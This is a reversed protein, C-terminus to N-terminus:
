AFSVTATGSLFITQALLTQSSSPCTPWSDVENVTVTVDFSGAINVYDGTGSKAVIPTPAHVTVLGSCSAPDTPFRAFAHILDTELTAINLEFSGRSLQVEARTGNKARVTHGFDAIAGTLVATSAPGDNNSYTTLHVLGGVRSNGRGAPRGHQSSTSRPSASGATPTTACASVGGIVLGIAIVSGVPVRSM